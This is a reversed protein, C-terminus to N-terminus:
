ELEKLFEILRDIERQFRERTDPPFKKFYRLYFLLDREAQRRIKETKKM